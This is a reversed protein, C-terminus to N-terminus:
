YFVLRLHHPTHLRAINMMKWEDDPNTLLVDDIVVTVRVAIMVEGILDISFLTKGDDRLHEDDDEKM